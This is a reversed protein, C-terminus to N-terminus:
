DHEKLEGVHSCIYMNGDANQDAEDRREVLVAPIMATWRHPAPGGWLRDDHIDLISVISAKDCFLYLQSARVRGPKEPEFNVGYGITIHIDVDKLGLIDPRGADKCISLGATFRHGFPFIEFVPTVAMFPPREVVLSTLTSVQCREPLPLDEGPSSITVMHRHAQMSCPGDEDSITQKDWAFWCKNEWFVPATNYYIVRFGAPTLEDQMWIITGPVQLIKVQNQRRFPRFGQQLDKLCVRPHGNRRLNLTGYLCSGSLFDRAVEFYVPEGGGRPWDALMFEPALVVFLNEDSNTMHSARMCAAATYEYFLDEEWAMWLRQQPERFIKILHFRAAALESAIHPRWRILDSEIYRHLRERTRILLDLSFAANADRGTKPDIGLREIEDSLFIDLQGTPLGPDNEATQAARELLVVAPIKQRFAVKEQNLVTLMGPAHLTQMAAMGILYVKM